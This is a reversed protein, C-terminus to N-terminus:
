ALASVAPGFTLEIDRSEAPAQAFAVQAMLAAALVADETLSAVIVAAETSGDIAARPVGWGELRSAYTDISHRLEASCSHLNHVFIPLSRRTLRPPKAAIIRATKGSAACPELRSIARYGILDDQRANLGSAWAAGRAATTRISGARDARM